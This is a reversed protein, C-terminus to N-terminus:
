EVRSEDKLTEGGNDMGLVKIQIKKRTYECGPAHRPLGRLLLQHLHPHHRVDGRARIDHRLVAEDDRGGSRRSM